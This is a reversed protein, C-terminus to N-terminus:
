SKFVCFTPFIIMKSQNQSLLIHMLEYEKKILLEIELSKLVIYWPAYFIKQEKSTKINPFPDSDYNKLPKLGVSVFSTQSLTRHRSIFSNCFLSKISNRSWCCSNIFCKMVEVSVWLVRIFSNNFVKYGGCFSM